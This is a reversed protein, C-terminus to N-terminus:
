SIKSAAVYRCCACNGSCRTTISLGEVVYSLKACHAEERAAVETPSGKNCDENELIDLFVLTNTMMNYNSTFEPVPTSLGTLGIFQLGGM